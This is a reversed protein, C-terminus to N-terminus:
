SAADCNLRDALDQILNRASRAVSRSWNDGEPTSRAALIRGLLGELAELAADVTAQYVRSTHEAVTADRLAVIRAAVRIPLGRGFRLTTKARAM